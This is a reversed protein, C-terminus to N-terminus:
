GSMEMSDVQRDAVTLEGVRTHDYAADGHRRERGDGRRGIECDAACRPDGGVKVGVGAQNEGRVELRHRPLEAIPRSGSQMVWSRIETGGVGFLDAGCHEGVEAQGMTREPGERGLDGRAREADHQGVVCRARKDDAGDVGGAAAQGGFDPHEDVEQDLDQRAIRRQRPLYASDVNLLCAPLQSSHRRPTVPRSM